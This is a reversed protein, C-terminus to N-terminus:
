EGDGVGELVLHPRMPIETPRWGTAHFVANGIAAAVPLKSLESLGCAEGKVQEFGGEYFHVDIEPTDGIGPIRYDELGFSLLTGTTPDIQREEYLAYGMGQIVGGYVQSKALVPNTIKGVGLGAWVKTVKINGLLTDVVVEAIYVAGTMKLILSAGLEGSPMKGMIDFWGNSGRKTTVRISPAQQLVLALPLYGGEHRIGAGEWRGNKVGIASILQRKVKQAAEIATPYVSNTARSGTSGPGEVYGSQGIEVKVELPSIGFEEAIAKAIVSRLGNGMDQAATKAVLGKHSATLEIKTANHYINFWNGIALGIGKKFRENSTNVPGRNAWAPIKEAWDYLPPRIENNDWKRRLAIPDMGIKHAMEDIASELAWFAAPGSPARFPRAGPANTVVDFDELAKPMGTYTFRLWPAVQSQVAVGSNGYIKAVLAKPQGSKDVALALETQTFPRYGGLVMEEMRDYALRVPKQAHRSLAIASKIEITLGQKAGFAGGVFESFVEVQEKKLKFHKAIARALPAIVQTSVHVILKENGEWCAVAAHPELATHTQGSTKYTREVLHLAPDNAAKSYIAQAKGKRKSLFHNIFPTRLNGEWKGPPIPGESANPPVKKSEPYVQPAGPQLAEAMNTVFPRIDYQINIKQIAEHLTQEDIAAIALIPQGVFRVVRHKDELVDIVAEVGPMALAAEMDISLIKANAYRSGLLKGELMSEYQIDVTYKAQGTVKEIAEVRPSVIQATEDFDGACARQIAKYIGTYAGCRCLHGSMAYAVQAKSPETKGHERRWQEYFAISENIFGPTCFGCQLGDHAMFARQVPHLDNAPHAEVTKIKKGELSHAPLLCATMPKGDVLITCAGCVGAGCALKTGTLQAKERIIAIATEEPQPEFEFSQGNITTKM